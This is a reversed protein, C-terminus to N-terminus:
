RRCGVGCPPPSRAATRSARWGCTLMCGARPWSMWTARPWGGWGGGCTAPMPVGLALRAPNTSWAADSFRRDAETPALNYQGGLIRFTEGGLTTTERGAGALFSMMERSARFSPFRAAAGAPTELEERQNRLQDPTTM